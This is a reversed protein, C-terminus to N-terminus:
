KKSSGPDGFDIVLPLNDAIKGIQKGMQSLEHLDPQRAQLLVMRPRSKTPDSWPHRLDQLLQEVDLKGDATVPVRLYTGPVDGPNPPVAGPGPNTSGGGSAPKAGPIEIEIIDGGCAIRIVGDADPIGIVRTVM